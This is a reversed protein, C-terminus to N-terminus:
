VVCPGGDKAGDKAREKGGEKTGVRGGEEARRWVCAGDKKMSAMHGLSAQPDVPVDAYINSSEKFPQVTLQTSM